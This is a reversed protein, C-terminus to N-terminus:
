EDDKGSIKGRRYDHSSQKFVSYKDVDGDMAEKIANVFAREM